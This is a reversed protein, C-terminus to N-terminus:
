CRERAVFRHLSIATAPTMQTIAETRRLFIAGDMSRCKHKTATADVDRPMWRSITGTTTLTPIPTTSMKVAERGTMSQSHCCPSVDHSLVVSMLCDTTTPWIDASTLSQQHLRKRTTKVMATRVHNVMAAAMANAPTSRCDTLTSVNNAVAATEAKM